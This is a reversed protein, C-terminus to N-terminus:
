VSRLVHVVPELKGMFMFVEHHLNAEIHDYIEQGRWAVIEDRQRRLRSLRLLSTSTPRAREEAYERWETGIEEVREIAFGAEEFAREMDRRRMNREIWGLHRRMMALDAGDLRDTAFSNYTLLRADRAMARHLERLGTVVDDVQVLVERCWAFDIGQDSAPIDHMVGEHITIRDAVDAAATLATRAREVHVAVPEIGIATITPHRRALEILQTGDRCGVDLITDGGEIHEAALEYLQDHGRPDLSKDLRAYVDWTTPGYVTTMRDLNQPGRM